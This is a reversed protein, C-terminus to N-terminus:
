LNNVSIIGNNVIGNFSLVLDPIKPLSHVEHAVAEAPAPVFWTSFTQKYLNNLVVDPEEGSKLEIVVRVGERSSEDRIDRM